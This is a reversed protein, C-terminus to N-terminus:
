GPAVTRPEDALFTAADRWAAPDQVLFLHGGDYVHLAAGPIRDVIAKGNAVPAIDDYSGSAVFTPCGVRHLRSLVDHRKRAQLQLLRGRAQAKTEGGDYGAAFGGALVADGPHAALWEPTWRRDTLQLTRDAREAPPLDALEDLPYSAYAGGASTGLLALRGVREPCSVAFEQAVMGGFSLGMLATRQWGTVDLLGAVDAALDAMTYPETVPASAGMGRYDFALLDFRSALMHLLPRVSDLTSGSGNNNLVFVVPTVGYRGMVALENLTLQHYGDGTVLWTRGKTKAM